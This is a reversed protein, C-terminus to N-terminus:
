LNPYWRLLDEDGNEILINVAYYLWEEPTPIEGEHPIAEWQARKKPDSGNM